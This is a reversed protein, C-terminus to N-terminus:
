LQELYWVLGWIQENALLDKWPPMRSITGDKRKPGHYIAGFLGARMRDGGFTFGMKPGMGGWKKPMHEAPPVGELRGRPGHCAACVNKWLVVAETALADDIEVKGASVHFFRQDRAIAEEVSIGLDRARKDIWGAKDHPMAADPPTPVSRAAVCGAAAAGLALTTALVCARRMGRLAHTSVHVRLSTFFPM